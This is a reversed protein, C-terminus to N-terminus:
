FRGKPVRPADSRGGDRSGGSRRDGGGSPGRRDGGGSPGRRDGGGSPGRRDGGGGGGRRDGGGPGRRDGGGGRRDGGGGGGGRYGGGGGGGGPGRREGGDGRREGGGGGGGGGEDDGGGEGEPSGEFKTIPELDIRGRDDVNVVRVAVEDGINVCDEVRRVFGDALDSIHILGDRGKLVEVFAGFPAIRTVKGTYEQGPEAVAFISEIEAIAGTAGEANATAVQVAGDEEVAITVGYEDQIGRIVKGGPGILEGIREPDIRLMHIRPAYQSLDDRPSELAANMLDLVRMRAERAQELARRMLEISLGDIKIDLQIATIGDSTGAVKFDMDGLFDETGIMDTLVVENDGEKILGVGVGAVQKKIPVGADMLALSAACVTAMSSSASSELIESVLRITYPFDDQSPIVPLLANEALAGHGIERRGPGMPRRAEGVSFGPFNYHLFFTRKDDPKLGRVTNADMSTGLTAAALAQTQGRTFLASGHARPLVGVESEIPRLDQIGRGDLRKGDDLISRRMTEKELSRFVTKADDTDDAHEEGLEALVADRASRLRADRETSDVVGICERIRDVSLERVRAELSDAIEPVDVERKAKGLEEAFQEQLEVMRVIHEHAFTIAQVVDEEPAEHAAGELSMVAAKTGTVHFHLDSAEVQQYTPWAVLEGDVRAVTLGGVPGGFPIDSIALAAAIGLFALDEAPHVLDASVVLAQVVTECRYSKPFLPRFSHDFQRATLTEDTGPRPERRGYIQPVKGVAYSRERFDVTLPVFDLEPKARSDSVATALVVTDGRQVWVAGHAQKAVKGTQISISEDGVQLEVTHM